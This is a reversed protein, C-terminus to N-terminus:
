ILSKVAFLLIGVGILLPVLGVLTATTGTLNAGEISTSVVPLLAVAVAIGIIVGVFGVVFERIEAM